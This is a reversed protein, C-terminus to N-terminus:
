MVWRAILKQGRPESYWDAVPREEFRACHCQANASDSPLRATHEASLSDANRDPEHVLDIEIRWPCARPVRFCHDATARSTTCVASSARTIVTLFSRGPFTKSLSRGAAALRGFESGLRLSFSAVRCFFGPAPGSWRQPASFALAWPRFRIVAFACAAPSQSACCQWLV